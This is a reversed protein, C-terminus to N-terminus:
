RHRGVECQSRKDSLRQNALALCHSLVPFIFSQLSHYNTSIILVRRSSPNSLFFARLSPSM